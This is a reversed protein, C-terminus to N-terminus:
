LGNGYIFAKRKIIDTMEQQLDIRNSPTQSDFRLIKHSEDGIRLIVPNIRLGLHDLRGRGELFKRCFLGTHLNHIVRHTTRSQSKSEYDFVRRCSVLVM